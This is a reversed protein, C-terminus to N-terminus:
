LNMTQKHIDVMKELSFNHATEKAEDSLKLIDIEGDSFRKLIQSLKDVDEPDYLFGNIGDRVMELGANCRTTTVVGLGNAMAENVVLGWIDERTPLVFLDCAKYYEKLSERDMFDVFHINTLGADKVLKDLEDNPKGGVLYVGISDDLKASAKILIDFGKRPIMQGVSIIARDEKIELESKLEAKKESSITEKIIDNDFVSSLPYRVISERKAGYNVCYDDFAKCTSYVRTANGVIYKKIMYKLKNDKHVFGGDGEYSYPIHHRKLYSVATLATLSSLVCIVIEDYKDAKLWKTIEPCYASDVATRKGQMIIGRFNKFEFKKWNDDRESSHSAEFLVTLECFKGLENFFDVRYPSPINTYFLIKKM